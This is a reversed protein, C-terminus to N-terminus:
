WVDRSAPDAPLLVHVTGLAGTLSPNLAWREYRVTTTPAGASEPVYAPPAFRPPPPLACVESNWGEPTVCHAGNGCNDDGLQIFGLSVGTGCPCGAYICDDDFFSCEATHEECKTMDRRLSIYKGDEEAQKAVPASEDSAKELEDVKAELATLRSLVPKAERGYASAFIACITLVHSKM